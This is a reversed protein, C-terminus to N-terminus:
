LDHKIDVDDVQTGVFDMSITCNILNTSCQGATGGSCKAVQKDTRTGKVAESDVTMEIHTTTTTTTKAGQGDPMAYSVDVQKGDFTYTKDAVTGELVSDGTDLYLKEDAGAYLILTASVRLSSSDSKDDPPVTKNYYCSSGQEPEAYAVRYVVTDGPQVGSKCSVLASSTALVAVLCSLSRTM